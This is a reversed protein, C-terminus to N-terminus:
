LLDSQIPYYIKKRPDELSNKETILGQRKLEELATQITRRPLHSLSVLDGLETPHNTKILYYIFKAALDGQPDKHL